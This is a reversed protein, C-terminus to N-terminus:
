LSGNCIRSATQSESINCQVIEGEALTIDYVQNDPLPITLEDWEVSDDDDTYCSFAMTYEGAPIFGFSYLWIESTTDFSLSAVAFPANPNGPPLTSSATTFVDVLSENTLSSEQYLYIRNGKLPDDKESCPSVTDFLTNEIQGSLRAAIENNEMRIGTTTLQYTDAISQFELAQALSFEVTITQSGSSLRLSELSLTGGPVNLVKLTDNGDEVVYSNEISGGFIRISVESYLGADLELDEIVTLQALGRYDLLNVQFDPGNDVNLEPITFDNVVFDASGSRRFTISDVKIVVEKLDEPLADSFGLTLLAPNDDNNGGGSCSFGCGCGGLTVFIPALILLPLLFKQSFKM